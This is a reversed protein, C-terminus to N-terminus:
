LQKMERPSQGHPWPAEGTAIYAFGFYLARYTPNTFYRAVSEWPRRKAVELSVAFPQVILVFLPALYRLWNQPLRLDLLVFRKGPTLASAARQRVEAYDPELTLAFTSLVGDVGAPFEFAAASSEVLDVNRWGEKQIRARAVTLMEAALDVGVIRGNPGIARQLLSCNLGTGCGIEVVTDGANLALAAVAARRFHTERFGILYYLNATFDYRKARRRYVARVESPDLFASRAM